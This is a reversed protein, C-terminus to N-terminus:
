MRILELKYLKILLIAQLITAVIKNILYLMNNKETYQIYICVKKYTCWRAIGLDYTQNGAFNVHM